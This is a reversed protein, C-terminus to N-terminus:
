SWVKPWGYCNLLRHGHRVKFLLAIRRCCDARYAIEALLASKAPGKGAQAAAILRGSFRADAVQDAILCRVLNM